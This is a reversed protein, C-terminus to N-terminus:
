EGTYNPYTWGPRTHDQNHCEIFCTKTSRDPSIQWFSQSNTPQQDYGPLLVLLRPNQDNLSTDLNLLHYQESGHTDHCQYCSADNAHDSHLNTTDRRFNTYEVPDNGTLYTEPRHCNFCVEAGTLRSHGGFNVTVYLSTEKLIHLQGAHSPSSLGFVM